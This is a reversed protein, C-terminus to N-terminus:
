LVEGSAAAVRWTMFEAVKGELDLLDSDNQIHWDFRWDELASESPHLNAAETEPRAVRVVVGGLAKIALAENPFRVDTAVWLRNEDLGTLATDVWFDEGLIRRGAETGLRQLTGRVVSNEKAKEWGVQAVFEALRLPGKTVVFTHDDIGSERRETFGIIPDMALAIAKMKDAFAVRHYGHNACLIRGVTDKGARAFGSVGIIEM